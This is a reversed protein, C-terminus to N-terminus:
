LDLEIDWVPSPDRPPRYSPSTPRGDGDQITDSKEKSKQSSAMFALTNTAHNRFPKEFANKLNKVKVQGFGPLNALQEPQAKAINAISGFSNRLTEVDTKNVKSVSTLSTRLMSTYDKDVREKIMNPPKYEFQKLTSLYHGAEEFSFAVIVTISNTLCVKTLERIPDKHESIDSLILLIRLTYSTGLKEIRTHIYEPHLRHYKLGRHLISVNRLFLVGTTRGVQYDAVIDGFEKGVNRVCELVPNGRQLPNLIINNGSGPIVVPPAPRSSSSSM